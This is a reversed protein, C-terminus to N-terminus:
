KKKKFEEPLKRYLTRESMGLEDAALKRNGGHKELARRILEEESKKLSLDQPEVQEQEEPADEEWQPLQHHYAPEGGALVLQKLSDLENKLDRIAKYIMEKEDVSMGGAQADPGNYVTPLVPGEERPIYSLLTPGDLIIRESTPTLKQSELATVAYTFNMLQRINGPWRYRGLVDIADHNLAVKCMGYKDAFDSTFKRFLLYIDDKRERLPPLRLQAANIRYYLDQRFAGKQMAFDLNVNTAAVVRVNTHEVKTSGVKMYEGSQLVRLLKVQTAPSLEGIEDLFITGKDAEEFFGPRNETAGTFAGKVHGFLESDVTGSPIAGCNVAVFKFNRRTSYQHIIRAINEKGTGSEGTILVPLDTPAFKVATELARNFVPDNGLIDFKNKLIQLEQSDM